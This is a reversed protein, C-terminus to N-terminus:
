VSNDPAFPSLSFNMKGRQASGSLAPNAVKGPQDMVQEFHQDDM